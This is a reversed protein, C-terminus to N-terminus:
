SFRTNHTDKLKKLVLFSFGVFLVRYPSDIILYIFSYIGNKENNMKMHVLIGFNQCFEPFNHPFFLM